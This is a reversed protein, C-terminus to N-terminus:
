IREGTAVGHPGPVEAGRSLETFHIGAERLAAVAEESVIFTRNPLAVGPSHRVLLAWAEADDAASVQILVKM